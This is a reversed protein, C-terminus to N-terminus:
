LSFSCTGKSHTVKGPTKNWPQTSINALNPNFYPVIESKVLAAAEDADTQLEIAVAKLLRTDVQQM